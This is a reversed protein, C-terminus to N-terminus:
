GPAWVEASALPAGSGTTGGVVLVRGDNLLVAEHDKRAQTMSAAPLFEFVGPRYLEASAVTESPSDCNQDFGGTVLVRGDALLTARHQMRDARMRREAYVQTRPDLVDARRTACDDGFMGGTYGGSLLVRGNALTTVVSGAPAEERPYGDTWGNTRADYIRVKSVTYSDSCAGPCAPLRIIEASFVALARGSPLAVLGDIYPGDLRYNTDETDPPTRFGGNVPGTQVWRGSAPEYYEASGPDVTLVQGGTLRAARHRTRVANMTRTATWRNATRSYIEATPAGGGGTVLVRGDALETATHDARPALMPALAIFGGTAPDYREVTRVVSGSSGRGGTVLVRGTSSLLTAEHGVRPTAMSGAGSWSGGEGPACAGAVLLSAGALGGALAMRKARSM